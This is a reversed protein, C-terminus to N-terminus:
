FGRATGKIKRALKEIKDAKDVINVSLINENSKDLEDQLAKALDALDKADRKMKEFNSKMLDRKQKDTLPIRQADQDPSNPVLVQSTDDGAAATAAQASPLAAASLAHPAESIPLTLGVFICVAITLRYLPSKSFIFAM